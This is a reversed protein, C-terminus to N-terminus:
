SLGDPFLVWCAPLTWVLLLALAVQHKSELPTVTLVFLILLVALINITKKM